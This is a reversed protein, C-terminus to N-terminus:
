FLEDLDHKENAREDALRVNEEGYEQQYQMDNDLYEPRDYPDDDGFARAM